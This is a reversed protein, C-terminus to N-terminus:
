YFPRWTDSTISIMEYDNWQLERLRYAVCIEWDPQFQSLTAQIDDLMETTLRIETMILNLMTDGFYDQVLYYDGRSNCYAKGYKSLMAEVTDIVLEWEKYDVERM